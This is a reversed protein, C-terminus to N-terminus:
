VTQHCKRRKRQRTRYWGGGTSLRTLTSCAGWPVNVLLPWKIQTRRHQITDMRERQNWSVTTSMGRELEAACDLRCLKNVAWFWNKFLFVLVTIFFFKYTFISTGDIQFITEHHNDHTFYRWAQVLQVAYGQAFSAYKLIILILNSYRFSFALFLSYLFLFYFFSMM